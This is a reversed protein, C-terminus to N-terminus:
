RKKKPRQVLAGIRYLELTWLIQKARWHGIWYIIPSFILAFVASGLVNQWETIFARLQDPAADSALALLAIPLTIYCVAVNRFVDGSRSVNVKAMEVLADLTEPSAGELDGAAARSRSGRLVGNLVNEGWLTYSGPDFFLDLAFTWASFHAVVKRWREQLEEANASM